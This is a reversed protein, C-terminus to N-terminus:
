RGMKALVDLQWCMEDQALPFAGKPDAVLLKDPPVRGLLSQVAGAAKMTFGAKWCLSVLAKASRLSAAREVMAFSVGAAVALLAAVRTLDATSAAELLRPEDLEGRTALGRAEAMADDASVDEHRVPTPPMPVSSPALRRQVAVALAERTNHDLDSRATLEQMLTDTVIVALAAAARPSLVPRRVLPPQYETHEAAQAILADLTAERIRASKNSLLATIAVSDGSAAIADGIAESLYPRHAIAAVAGEVPPAAVLGMLDAETLLPSFRLVPDAVNLEIDRALQIILERPADPMSKLAEAIALRVQAATDGVLTTLTEHALRRLRDRETGSLGPALTAVKRALATRVGLDPDARLLHDAQAPTNHNAAVAARVQAAPDAALFFLIEPAADARAALMARDREDSSTAASKADDYPMPKAKQAASFQM